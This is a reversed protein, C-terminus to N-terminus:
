IMRLIAAADCITLLGDADTDANYAGRHTVTLEAQENVFRALLVADAANVAGSVDVDGALPSSAFYPYRNLTEADGCPVGVRANFDTEGAYYVGYAPICWHLTSSDFYFQSKDAQESYNCDWTRIRRDYTM